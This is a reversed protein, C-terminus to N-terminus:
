LLDTLHVTESINSKLFATVKFVPNPTRWPWQFHWWEISRTHCGISTRYYSDRDWTTEPINLTSFYRSRSILTRYNFTTGNSLNRVTERYYTDRLRVTKWINSKYTYLSKSVRRATFVTKACARNYGTIADNWLSFPQVFLASNSNPMTGFWVLCSTEVYLRALLFRDFALPPVHGSAPSAVSATHTKYCSHRLGVKWM